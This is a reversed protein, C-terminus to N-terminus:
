ARARAMAEEIATLHRDWGLRAQAHRHASAAAAARAAPDTLLARLADALRSADGAPVLRAGPVDALVEGTAGADTAVVPLGSALAEATAMGFGELSRTPLVFVDAARYLAPLREDPVRGLFAVREALGLETARERLRTELEGTGAIALRFSLGDAALRGCAELLDTLGMRAVLRRVTVLLPGDGLPLGCTDAAARRSDDDPAPTFRALDVGAPAVTTRAAAEPCLQAVQGRSFESLVLVERARSLLYRDARALVRSVTRARLPAEGTTRGEQFRALFELHYPAYFSFLRTRTRAGGPAFAPVASAIQHVHVVDADADLGDRLAGRVGSWVSRYFASSSSQDLPYRVVHVGARQESAAAGGTRGTLLTVTHGRVALGETVDTIVREAGGFHDPFAFTAIHLLKM